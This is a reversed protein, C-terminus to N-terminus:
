PHQDLKQSLEDIKELLEAIQKSALRYRIKRGERKCKVLGCKRLLQLHHSVLSQEVKLARVIDCVCFSGKRLMLLIELRRRDVLCKLLALQHPSIAPVDEHRSM